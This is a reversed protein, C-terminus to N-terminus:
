SAKESHWKFRISSEKFNHKLASAYNSSWTEQAARQEHVNERKFNTKWSVKAKNRKRGGEYSLSLLYNTIKNYLHNNM